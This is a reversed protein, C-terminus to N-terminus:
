QYIPPPIMLYLNKTIKLLDKCMDTYDRVFKDEDWIYNKADNTGLMFIIIDAKSKLIKKYVPL